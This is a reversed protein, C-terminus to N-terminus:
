KKPMWPLGGDDVVIFKIKSNDAHLVRIKLSKFQIIGSQDLDYTLEQYFAPRALCTKKPDTLFARPTKFSLSTMSNAFTFLPFPLPRYTRSTSM